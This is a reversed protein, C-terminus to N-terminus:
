GHTGLPTCRIPRWVGRQLRKGLWWSTLTYSGAIAISVAQLPSADFDGQHNDFMALLHPGIMLRYLLYLAAVTLYPRAQRLGDAPASRAAALALVAVLGLFIENSVLSLAAGAVAVWQWATSARLPTVLVLLAVLFFLMGVRYAIASLWFVSGDAPFIAWLVATALALSRSKTLRALCLYLLIANLYCIAFLTDYYRAVNTGFLGTWVFWPLSEFPRYDTPWTYFLTRWSEGAFVLQLHSWDDRYLGPVPVRGLYAVAYILALLSLVGVARMTRAAGLTLRRGAAPRAQTASMRSSSTAGTEVLM